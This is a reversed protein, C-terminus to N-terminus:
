AAPQKSRLSTLFFDVTFIALTILLSADHLGLQQAQLPSVGFVPIILLFAAEVVLFLIVMARLCRITHTTYRKTSAWRGKEDGASGSFLATRASRFKRTETKVLGVVIYGLFASTVSVILMWPLDLDPM